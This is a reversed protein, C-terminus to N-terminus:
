SIRQAMLTRTGRTPTSYTCADMRRTQKAFTGTPDESLNAERYRKGLNEVDKIDDEEGDEVGDEDDFSKSLTFM